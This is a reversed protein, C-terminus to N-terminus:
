SSEARWWRAPQIPRLVEAVMAQLDAETIESRPVLRFRRGKVRTRTFELFKAATLEGAFPVADVIQGDHSVIIATWPSASIIALAESTPIKMTSDGSGDFQM